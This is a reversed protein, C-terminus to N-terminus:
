CMKRPIRRSVTCVAKSKFPSNPERTTTLSWHLIERIRQLKDLYQAFM